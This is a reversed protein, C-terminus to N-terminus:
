RMASPIFPKGVKELHTQEFTNGIARSSNSSAEVIYCDLVNAVVVGPSRGTKNSSLDM